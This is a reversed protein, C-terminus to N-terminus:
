AHPAKSATLATSVRPDAELLAAVAAKGGRLAWDMPTMGDQSLVSHHSPLCCM